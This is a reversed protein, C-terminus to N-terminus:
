LLNLTILAIDILLTIVAANLIWKVPQVALLLALTIMTPFVTLSLQAISEVGGSWMVVGGMCGVIIMVMSIIAFRNHELNGHFLNNWFSSEPMQDIHNM